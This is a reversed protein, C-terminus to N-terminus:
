KGILSETERGISAAFAGEGGKAAPVQEKRRAKKPPALGEGGTDIEIGFVSTLEGEAFGRADSRRAPGPAETGASLLELHDVKRLTFLLEPRQDFRAGIGYLVAAIHKCMQAHDPCSCEMQIQSPAPFLGKDRDTVVQMIARSIKGRLLDVLSDIQGACRSVIGKWRPRTLPTVNVSVEYLASGQVVADIRGPGVGLHLVSGSRVYTRGRPLRNEFDSFSELHECWAKGWFTQAIARGEITVPEVALGKKKRRAVEREGRHRREAASLRPGFEYDYWAL